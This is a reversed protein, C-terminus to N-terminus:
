CRPADLGHRAVITVPCGGQLSELQLSQANSFQHGPVRRAIIRTAIITRQQVPLSALRSNRRVWVEPSRNAGRCNSPLNEPSGRAPAPPRGHGYDGRLPGGATKTNRSLTREVALRVCGSSAPARRRLTGKGCGPVRCPATVVVREWFTGRRLRWGWETSDM